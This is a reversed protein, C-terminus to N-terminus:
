VKFYKQFHNWFKTNRKFHINRYNLKKKKCLECKPIKSTKPQKTIPEQQM